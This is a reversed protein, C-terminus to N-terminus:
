VITKTLADAFSDLKTKLSSDLQTGMYRLKIGGLISPDVKCELIFTKNATRELKERLRLLESESLPVASIVTAHEIGRSKEYAEVFGDIAIVAANARHEEALMKILSRLHRHVGGLSEDLLSLRDKKAMAPTNLLKAYEPNKSFAARVAKADSLIDDAVGEEEALLYLARGYEKPDTM